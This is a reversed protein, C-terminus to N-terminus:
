LAVDSSAAISPQKTAHEVLIVSKNAEERDSSSHVDTSSSESENPSPSSSGSETIVAEEVEPTLSLSPLVPLLGLNTDRVSIMDDKLEDLDHGHHEEM